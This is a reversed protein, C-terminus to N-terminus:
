AHIYILDIAYFCESILVYFTTYIVFAANCILTFFIPKEIFFTPIVLDGVKSSKDMKREYTNM